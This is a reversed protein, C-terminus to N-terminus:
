KNEIYYPVEDWLEEKAHPQSCESCEYVGKYDPILENSNFIEAGCEKCYGILIKMNLDGKKNIKIDVCFCVKSM